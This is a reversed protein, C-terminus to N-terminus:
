LRGSELCLCYVPQQLEARLVVAELFVFLLPELSVEDDDVLGRHDICDQHMMQKLCHPRFGSKDKDSIDSWSGDTPAPLTSLSMM